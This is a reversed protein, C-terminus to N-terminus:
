AMRGTALAPCAEPKGTHSRSRGQRLHRSVDDHGVGYKASVFALPLRSAGVFPLFSCCHVIRTHVRGSTEQLLFNVDCAGFNLDACSFHSAFDSPFKTPGFRDAAEAEATVM